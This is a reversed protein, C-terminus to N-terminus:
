YICFNTFTLCTPLLFNYLVSDTVLILLISVFFNKQAVHAQLTNLHCAFFESIIPLNTASVSTFSTDSDPKPLEYEDQLMVLREILDRHRSCLLDLPKNECLPAAAAEPRSESVEAEEKRPRPERLKRRSMRAKCQEM